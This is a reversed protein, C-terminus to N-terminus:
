LAERGSAHEGIFSVGVMTLPLRHSGRRRINFSPFNDTLDAGAPTVGDKELKGDIRNVGSPIKFPLYLYKGTDAPTVTATKRLTRRDAALVEETPSLAGIGTAAAMWALFKKRSIGM